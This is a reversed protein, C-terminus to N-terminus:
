FGSPTLPTPSAPVIPADGATTFETTSASEGKPTFCRSMGSVGSFNHRTIPAPLFAHNGLREIIGRGLRQIFRKAQQGFARLREGTAHAQNRHHLQAEGSRLVEHIEPADLVQVIDALLAALDM